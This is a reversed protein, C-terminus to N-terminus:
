GTKGSKGFFRSVNQNIYHTRPVNLSLVSTVLMLFIARYRVIAGTFPITYGILLLVSISFFLILGQFSRLPQSSVKNRQVVILLVLLWAFVIEVAAIQEMSSKANFPYPRLVAHDIAPWLNVAFGKLTPSLTIGHLRSNGELMDFADKRAVVGNPLDIAPFFASVSFFVLLSAMATLLYVVVPRFKYRWIVLYAILAPVLAPLLYNRFAFIGAMSLAMVPLHKRYNLGGPLKTCCWLLLGLFFFVIGDRHIGSAWFICSPTFFIIATTLASPTKKLVNRCALFYFVYGFFTFLSYLVVNVYYHGGSFLNMLSLIKVVLNDKLNNWYGYSSFIGGPSGASNPFLNSLFTQPDRLILRYEELAAAHFHWTDSNEFREPNSYWYGYICGALTKIGFFILWYRMPLGSSRTLSSRSIIYCAAVAYIFFLLYPM